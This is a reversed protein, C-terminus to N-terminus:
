VSVGRKVMKKYYEIYEDPYNLKKMLEVFKNEDIIKNKFWKIVDEKSPLKTQKRRLNELDVLVRDRYSSPLNLHDLQNMAEEYTILGTAYMDKIIDIKKDLEDYLMDLKWLQVILSAEDEDYGLVKLNEKADKENLIGYEFAKQIQSMTLDKQAENKYAKYFKLMLKADDKTYGLELLRAYLEKEDILGLEYMRRLDVRNLPPYSIAILRKRWYSPIDAIKLLTELDKLDTQIEEPKLGMKEYKQGLVELVDPNLRQLMEYGQTPSPLDWHARWYYKMIEPPMGAKEVYPLIQEPFDEDYGYHKVIEENFVDRVAFRIFDSPSPYFLRIKEFLKANEESFGLKKMEELYRRENEKEDDSFAKRWKAMLLEEATLLRKELSIIKKVHEEDYGHKKMREKFEEDSLLGKIHLEILTAEEFEKNPFTSNLFYNIGRSAPPVMLSFGFLGALISLIPIPV